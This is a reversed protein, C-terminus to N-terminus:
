IYIYCDEDQKRDYFLLVINIKEIIKEKDQKTAERLKM